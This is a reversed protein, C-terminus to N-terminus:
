ADRFLRRFQMQAGILGSPLEADSFVHLFTYVDVAVESLRMWALVADSWREELLAARLTEAGEPGLLTPDTDAVLDLALLRQLVEVDEALYVEPPDFRVVAYAVGKLDAAGAM